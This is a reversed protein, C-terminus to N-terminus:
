RRRRRALMTGRCTPAGCRCPYRAKAAKTHPEDLVLEYDYTLEEGPEITRLTEIWIRGGEVIADCNPACSHNLWRADNGGVGADVVWADDVAFLFTHPVHGHEDLVSARAKAEDASIRAGAYEILLTRPPIRASAFGGRGHIPSDRIAIPPDDTADFRPRSPM